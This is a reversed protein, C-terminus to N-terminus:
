GVADAHARFDAARWHLRAPFPEEVQYVVEPLERMM